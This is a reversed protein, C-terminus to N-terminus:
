PAAVRVIKSNIEVQVTSGIMSNASGPARTYSFIGGVYYETTGDPYGVKFSHPTYQAPPVPVGAELVNQGADAFDIEFGLSTSGYNIFGNFKETVGTKLPNSEVVQVTPGYEPLDILEGCETYTLAAFGAQDITAPASASVSVAVGTSTMKGM